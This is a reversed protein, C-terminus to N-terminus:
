RKRLVRKINRKGHLVAIVEFPQSQPRYIIQYSRVPWFLVPQSTLDERRHGQGPMAALGLIADYIEARVREAADVGDQAIYEYIDILDQTAEPSLRFRTM